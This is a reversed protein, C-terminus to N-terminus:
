VIVARAALLPEALAADGTVAVRSRAQDLSLANFFVRWATDGTMRVTCTADDATGHRLDWAGDAGRGLSWALQGDDIVLTVTTGAPADLSQYAVPLARVAIDLLPGLWRRELLLPRGAADRIQMQHHWWETYERGTDMWNESTAEGAWSVAFIAPGHPPLAEILAIAWEGAVRLLDVIQRPSLRAAFAVGGANLANVARTLDQPSRIPADLPAFHGDRYVAVKRLMGDLLHAAVDRVRWHGAVTPRLWDDPALTGLVALLEAHLPRFLPATDVPGLM